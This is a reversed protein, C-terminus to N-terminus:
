YFTKRRNELEDFYLDLSYDRFIYPNFLSIIIDDYETVIKENDIVKSLTNICNESAEKSIKFKSSLYNSTVKAGNKILQKLVCQPALIQSAFFNAEQENKECQTTHELVIHGIEHSITWMKRGETEIDNNYFIYATNNNFYTYGDNFSGNSTLEELPINTIQSYEQLSIIVFNYSDLKLKRPDIPFSFSQQKILIEYAKLKARYFNPKDM